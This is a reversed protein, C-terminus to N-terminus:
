ETGSENPTEEEENTNDSVQTPTAESVMRDFAAKEETLRTADSEARVREDEAAQKDQEIKHRVDVEYRKVAIEQDIRYRELAQEREFKQKEFELKQQEIQLKMMAETNTDGEGGAGSQAEAMNVQARVMAEQAKAQKLMVDAEKEAVEAEQIRMQLQQQRQAEAQAEPSNKDGELERLIDAKDKLRSSQILYKDPLQVGAETRLRLAQDYQTEEFTDRDPQNTIVVSYEGLTLDNIIMGEPTPRNVEMTDQAGTLRDTTIRILRPETYYDQIMQLVVRALLYDSRNLSDQIHAVNASGGAQNAKVAKASVDERAFGTMYDSVGSISKIHEEAKYSVRDLGSPTANASIKQINATDDVEIVVGTQAGRQELEATSMNLLSNRKVIYGSNATTNIVHLEQSSTKNLLEQSSLLNEVIGVTRGRVFHPFYPVITFSQYPSWDDHLVEDGAVVTWRIRQAVKTVVGVSPNQQIYANIRAEDWGTPVPRIDGTVEDVFMQQKGLKKWQYDIVRVRRQRSANLSSDGYVETPVADVNGFKDRQWGLPDSSDVSLNSQSRLREAVAAGYVLEIDELTWWESYMVDGWGDPRYTDADPDIMVNEPNLQKIRIEGRLSDTFDLRADYFGRSTVIGDLFVDSRVWTLDNNDSIQMFTKTLADAVESTAGENRPKFSTDTRNFIQAGQVNSVTSLVKNITLAPRQVERLKALDSPDWQLGAFFDLCKRAKTVYDLHGHDRIYLYRDWVQRVLDSGEPVPTSETDNKRRRAM